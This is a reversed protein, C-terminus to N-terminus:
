DEGKEEEKAGGQIETRENKTNWFLQIIGM